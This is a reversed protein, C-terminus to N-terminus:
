LSRIAKELQDYEPHSYVNATFSYDTHGMVQKIYLPDAGAQALRTAFTHRCSHPALRRFELRELLPYYKYKRYSDPTLKKGQDDCILREGGRQYWKEIYPRIKPHIPIIRGAGAETKSEDVKIFNRKLDIDFLTLSLLESIRLGTFIMILITDVWPTIDVIKFLKEIELDSFIDKTKKTPKPLTIFEAYNKQVIDNQSAYGYLLSLLTKIKRLTSHSKNLNDIIQQYHATRLDKFKNNQLPILFSWASRYNDVTSKTIQPYKIGSWEEYLEGLTINAKPSIPSVRNLALADLAEQKTKFYGIIQRKQKGSPLWGTTIRAM